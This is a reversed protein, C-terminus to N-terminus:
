GKPDLLKKVVRKVRSKGYSHGEIAEVVKGDPAKAVIGHLELGANKVEEDAAPTGIKVTSLTINEDAYEKKLDDVIVKIKNCMM